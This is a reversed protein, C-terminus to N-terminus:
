PRNLIRATTKAEGDATLTVDSNRSAEAGRRAKSSCRRVSGSRASCM